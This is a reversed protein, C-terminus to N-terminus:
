KVPSKLSNVESNNAFKNEKIQSHLLKRAAKLEDESQVIIQKLSQSSIKRKKKIQERKDLM